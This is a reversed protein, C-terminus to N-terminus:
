ACVIKTKWFDLKGDHFNIKSVTGWIASPWARDTSKRAIIHIHLQSVVNGLSGINLKDFTTHSKLLRSIYDIEEMLHIQEERDLDILENLNNRKPVLLFWDLEGDKILRLQCLNLDTLYLSDRELIPDLEFSNM